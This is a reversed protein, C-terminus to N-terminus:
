VKSVKILLYKDNILLMKGEGNENTSDQPIYVAYFVTERSLNSHADGASQTETNENMAIAEKGFNENLV